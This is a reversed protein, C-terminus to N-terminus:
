KHQQKSDPICLKAPIVKSTMVGTGSDLKDILIGIAAEGMDAFPQQLYPIEPFINRTWQYGDFLVCPVSIGKQKFVEIIGAAHIDRVIFLSDFSNRRELLKEGLIKAEEVTHPDCILINKKEDFELGAEIIAQRYGAIRRHNWVRDLDINIMLPTKAGSTLLHRTLSYAGQFNDASVVCFQRTLGTDGIAAFPIDMKFLLEIDEETHDTAVIIGDYSCFLEENQRLCGSICTTDPELAFTDLKFRSRKSRSRLMGLRLQDNFPDDDPSLDSSFKRCVFLFRYEKLQHKIEPEEGPFKVFTGAGPKQIVLGDKVLEKLATRITVRSFGFMEALQREPPLKSDEGFEESFIKKRLAAILKNYKYHENISRRTM